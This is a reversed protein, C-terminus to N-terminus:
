HPRPPSDQSRFLAKGRAIRGTRLARKRNIAAWVRPPLKSASCVAASGNSPFRGDIGTGCISVFPPLKRSSGPVVFRYRSVRTLSSEFPLWPTRDRAPARTLRCNWGRATRAKHTRLCPRGNESLAALMPSGVFEPESQQPRPWPPSPNASCNENRKTAKHLEM